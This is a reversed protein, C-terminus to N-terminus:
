LMVQVGANILWKTKMQLGNLYQYLPVGAEVGISWAGRTYSVGILGDLRQGGYNRPDADPTPAGMGTTPHILKEIEADQGKIRGTDNFSLRVWSTAPGFARQLWGTMKISNGLSYDNDNEGIHYVYTAQAGWNWKSDDSLATYTLSPKLDYTGSGLQMDYPARWQKKMMVVTKDIAGTPLSIGLSGTLTKSIKYIGRLETDGWGSTSMPPETTIMKGPGMDMLMNMKNDLYNAMVMMTLRDTIGYMVMLMHMEMRMDTPIMMYNYPKGRKFGVSGADIDSTGARLGDMGMHMFKYNFMWMGAPHTHYIDEGFGPNYLMQSGPGMDHGSHGHGTNKHGTHQHGTAGTKGDGALEGTAAKMADDYTALRGGNEGIFAQADKEKAFAWKAVPSMVGDRKGGLVWTATKAEILRKSAYDAVMVSRVQKGSNQKLEVAACHISCVGVESGDSYTILMRSQAFVTRDMGCQKCAKPAEAEETAAFSNQATLVGFVLLLLLIVSYYSGSQNILCVKAKILKM